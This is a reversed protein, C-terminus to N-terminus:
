SNDETQNSVSVEEVVPATYTQGNPLAMGERPFIRTKTIRDQLRLKGDLFYQNVVPHNLLCLATALIKQVDSGGVALEGVGEYNRVIPTYENKGKFTSM